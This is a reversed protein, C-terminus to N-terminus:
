KNRYNDRRISSIQDALLGFCFVMITTIFLIITTGSIDFLYIDWVLFGVTLLGTFFSIPFFIKLPNFLMITRFILLTTSIAHHPKVTSKGTRKNIEIPIYNINLGANLFAMTSTTSISFGNPFLHVFQNFYEKKIIRFGSNIDPIKQETLYQAIWKLIKKGPQRISPGQYGIRKGVVMDTNGAEKILQPIYKANHQGDADFLLMWDHKSNKVGDKISAGYGKNYQHNITKIGSITELIEKTKDTSGDNVVIIEYDSSQYNNELFNKLDDLTSKIAKEENYAPIIISFRTM